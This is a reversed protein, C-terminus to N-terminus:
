SWIQTGCDLSFLFQLCKFFVNTFFNVEDYLKEFERTSIKEAMSLPVDKKDKKKQNITPKTFELCEKPKNEEMSQGGDTNEDVTQYQEDNNSPEPKTSSGDPAVQQMTGVGDVPKSKGASKKDEKKPQAMQVEEVSENEAQNVDFKVTEEKKPEPKKVKASKAKTTTAPKKKSTKSKETTKRSAGASKKTVKSVKSSPASKSSSVKSSKSTMKSSNKSSQSIKTAVSKKDSKGSSKTSKKSAEDKSKNSKEKGMVSSDFHTLLYSSSYRFSPAFTFSCLICIFSVLLNCGLGLARIYVFNLMTCYFMANNM